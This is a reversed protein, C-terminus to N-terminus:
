SGYGGTCSSGSRARGYKGGDGIVSLAVGHGVLALADGDDAAVEGAQRGRDLQRLPM